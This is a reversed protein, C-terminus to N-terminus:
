ARFIALLPVILCLTEAIQQAAGAVDGTQGHIQRASLWTMGLGALTAAVILSPGVLPPWGALASMAGLIAAAIAAATVLTPATPRGVHASAGDSRAPPLIALPLLGVLRSLIAAAIVFGLAKAAGYADILAALAVVRLLISACVAAAGFTGVRSDKMIELKRPITAGGGFGDAVDALGDEHFAGTTLMLAVIALGATVLPPLGAAAGLMLTAGAPTVIVLASLPLARPMRTFDPLAHPDEEGPLRRVPLRSYFRVGQAAETLFGARRATEPGAPLPRQDQM